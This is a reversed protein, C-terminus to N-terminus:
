SSSSPSRGTKWRVGDVTGNVPLFLVCASFRYSQPIISGYPRLEVNTLIPESYLRLVSTM